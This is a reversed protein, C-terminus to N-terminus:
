LPLKKIGHQIDSGKRRDPWIARHRGPEPGPLLIEMNGTLTGGIPVDNRKQRIGLNEMKFNNLDVAIMRYPYAKEFRHTGAVEVSSEDLHWVVRKFDIGEGPIYDLSFQMMNEKSRPDSLLIKPRWPWEKQILIAEVPGNIRYNKLQSTLM